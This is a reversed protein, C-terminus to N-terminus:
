WYPVRELENGTRPFPGTGGKRLMLLGIRGRGVIVQRHTRIMATREVVRRITPMARGQHLIVLPVLWIRDWKRSQLKCRVVQYTQYWCLYCTCAGRLQLRHETGPAERSCTTSKAVAPKEGFQGSLFGLPWLEDM